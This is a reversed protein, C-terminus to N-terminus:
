EVVQLAIQQGARAEENTQMLSPNRKGKKKGDRKRLETNQSAGGIAKFTIRGEKRKASFSWLLDEFAGKCHVDEYIKRSYKGPGKRIERGKLRCLRTANDKSSEKIVKAVKRGKGVQHLGRSGGKFKVANGQEQSEDSESRRRKKKKKWSPFAFKRCPVKENPSKDM